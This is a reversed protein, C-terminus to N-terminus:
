SATGFTALNKLVEEGMSPEDKAAGGGGKFREGTIWPHKLAQEASLRDQPAKKLLSLIFDKCADSLKITSPFRVQSRVIKRIIEKNERGWFPPRGTVLVYAIVGITWM